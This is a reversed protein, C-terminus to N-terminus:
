LPAYTQTDHQMLATYRARLCGAPMAAVAGQLGATWRRLMVIPPQVWSNVTCHACTHVQSQSMRSADSLHLNLSSTTDKDLEPNKSMDVEKEKDPDNVEKDKTKSVDVEKDKTKRVDVKKDADADDIEKDKSM